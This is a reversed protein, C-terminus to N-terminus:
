VNCKTTMLHWSRLTMLDPFDREKDKMVKVDTLLKSWNYKQKELTVISKGKYNILIQYPSVELNKLYSTEWRQRNTKADMLLWQRCYTNSYHKNIPSKRNGDDKRCKNM